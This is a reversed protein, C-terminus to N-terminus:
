SRDLSRRFLTEYGAVMQEQTFERLVKKRGEIGFRRAAEPNDLLWCIKGALENPDGPEVLLGTVSAVVLIPMSLM